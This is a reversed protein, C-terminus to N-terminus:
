NVVLSHSANAAPAPLAPLDLLQLGLNAADHGRIPQVGDRKIHATGPNAYQGGAANATYLDVGEGVGAGWAIFPITYNGPDGASGHNSQGLPGGHDATVIVSTTELLGADELGQLIQGVLEDSDRVAQVYKPSGWNASHGFQDPLRLHFFGYTTSDEAALLDAVFPAVADAPATREYVDLKNTGNDAGTIDAAGAEGYSRELYDFKAKGAYLITTGGNDHVIDFVSPVYAGAQQHVTAGNDENFITRHGGTGWVFRGTLQSTHNPLTRTMSPDTRANMTSAGDVMMSSLVPTLDATVHDARLGDISVHIVRDTGMDPTEPDVVPDVEDQEACVDDNVVGATRTRVLYTSGEPAATDVFSSSGGPLTVLWSGNRRIITSKTHPEFNLQVSEGILTSTCGPAPIQEGTTCNTDIVVGAIRSRVLYTSDQPAGADVYQTSGTPLTVLWSGNRRIVAKEDAMEFDVVVSSGIRSASCSDVAADADRVFTTMAIIAVVVFTAFLIWRSAMQTM